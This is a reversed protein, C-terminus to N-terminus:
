TTKKRQEVIQKLLLLLDEKAIPKEIHPCGTSSFFRQIKDSMTDGTVFGVRQAAEPAIVELAYFFEAGNIGPMKYDCLIADYSQAEAKRLAERPSVGKTVNYGEEKLIDYLLQAVGVDDEVILVSFNGPAIEEKVRAKNAEAQDTVAPLKVSFRTGKGPASKLVLKGDHNAVIRHSFALGVGTGKGVDKTTFFPEFIRKQLHPPIGPGNDEVDVVVRKSGAEFRTRVSLKGAHGLPQVAQKANTILNSFVQALQDFDGSVPPVSQDLTSTLITGSSTLGYSSVELVTALVDNVSCLEVRAPRRRAMSLFTRVIKTAREASQCILDVRGAQIPDSIKGQLMQAYGSIVSLPNNLEHAVGALLEGLASLKENQHVLERQRELEAQMALQDSIDRTSSVIVDEGKYDTVRAATLGEMISGDARRFQVRYDDLQGTPLLARLYAERDEPKLFFSLTTQINGFRERSAPPCYIIKGDDVRSVLFNAPCAEVIKRLLMDAERQEEEARLQETVDMFSVLYGNLETKHASALLTAGNALKLTIKKEYTRITNELEELYAAEELGEPICMVDAKFLRRMISVVNEGIEPAPINSFFMRHWERNAMSFNLDADYLVLGEDLSQIADNLVSLSLEEAEILATTDTVVIVRGDDQTVAREVFFHRGDKFSVEMSALTQRQEQAARSFHAAADNGVPQGKVTAIHHALIEIRQEDSLALIEDVSLQFPAAFAENCHTFRGDASEIAVGVPLRAVVDTFLREAKFRETIDLVTAVVGGGKLRTLTIVRYTGDAVKIDIKLTGLEDLTQFIQAPGGAPGRIITVHGDSMARQIVESMPTGPKLVDKHPGLMNAYQSNAYVLRRDRDYLVFGEDFAEIAELLVHEGIKDQSHPRTVERLETLFNGQKTESSTAQLVRGDRHRLYANGDSAMKEQLDNAFQGPDTDAPIDFCDHDVLDTFIEQFGRHVSFLRTDNEFVRERFVANSSILRWTRDWIAVGESLAEFGDLLISSSPQDGGTGQLSAAPTGLDSVPENEVIDNSSDATM